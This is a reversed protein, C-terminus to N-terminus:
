EGELERKLIEVAGHDPRCQLMWVPVSLSLDTLLEAVTDRFSADWSRVVTESYIWKFAEVPRLRCLVNESGKRLVVIGRVPANENRFISSSGAYPLGWAKWVGDEKRLAARDGNIIEAGQLQEWLKAQTSKGTGSPATFLIGKDKWRIFSAHLLLSQLTICVQELRMLQFLHGMNGCLERDEELIRCKMRQPTRENWFLWAYPKVRVSLFHEICLRSERRFVHIDSSHILEGKREPPRSCLSFETIIEAQGECSFPKFQEQEWFPFPIKLEVIRGAIEYKRSYMLRNFVEQLYLLQRAPPVVARM